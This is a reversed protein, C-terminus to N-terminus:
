TTLVGEMESCIATFVESVGKSGDVLVIKKAIDKRSALKLYGQRIKEMREFKKEFIDIAKGSFKLREMATRADIDIIVVLDPIWNDLVIESSQFAEAQLGWLADMDLGGSYGYALTSYFYRDLIVSEGIKLRLLYKNELNYIRDAMYLMQVELEDLSAGSAVKKIIGHMKRWFDFKEDGFVLCRDLVADSMKQSEIISHIVEGYLEDSPEYDFFYGPFAEKLMSIQRSKGSGSMGELVIFKGRNEM